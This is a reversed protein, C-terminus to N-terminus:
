RNGISGNRHRLAATATSASMLTMRGRTECRRGVSPATEARPAYGSGRPAKPSHRAHEERGVAAEPAESRPHDARVQRIDVAADGRLKETAHCMAAHIARHFACARM